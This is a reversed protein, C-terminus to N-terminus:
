MKLMIQESNTPLYTPLYTPSTLHTEYTEGQKSKYTSQGTTRYLRVFCSSGGIIDNWYMLEFHRIELTLHNCDNKYTSSCIM